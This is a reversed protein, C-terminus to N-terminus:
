HGQLPFGGSSMIRAPRQFHQRPCRLHRVPQRPLIQLQLILRRPRRLHANVHQVFSQQLDRSDGFGPTGVSPSGYDQTRQYDCILVPEIPAGCKAGLMARQCGLAKVLGDFKVAVSDFPRRAAAAAAAVAKTASPERQEEASCQSASKHDARTGRKLM